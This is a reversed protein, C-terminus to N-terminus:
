RIKFTQTDHVYPKIFFSGSSIERFCEECTERLFKVRNPLHPSLQHYWKSSVREEARM